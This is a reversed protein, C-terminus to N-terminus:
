VQARHVVDAAIREALGPWIRDGLVAGKAKWGVAYEKRPHISTWVIADVVKDPGDMM